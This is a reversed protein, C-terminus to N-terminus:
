SQAPNNTSPQLQSTYALLPRRLMNAGTVAGDASRAIKREATPATPAIKITLDPTIRVTRLITAIKNALNRASRVARLITAINFALEPTIRATHLTKIKIALDPPARQTENLLLLLRTLLLPPLTLM